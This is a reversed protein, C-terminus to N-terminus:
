MLGKNISIEKTKSHNVEIQTKNKEQLAFIVDCLKTPAGTISSINKLHKHGVNDFAKSIKSLKIDLFVVSVDRKQSKATLLIYRLLLTNIKTGPSSTFGNQFENFSIFTKNKCWIQNM